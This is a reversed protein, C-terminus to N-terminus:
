PLIVMEPMHSVVAADEVRAAWWDCSMLFVEFFRRLLADSTRVAVDQWLVVADAVPDWALAAEEKLIRGTAYGALRALGGDEDVHPLRWSLRLRDNEELAEVERGDVLFTFARAGAPIEEPYGIATALRALATTGNDMEM